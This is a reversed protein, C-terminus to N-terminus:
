LPVNITIRDYSCDYDYVGFFFDLCSWFCGFIPSPSPPPPTVYTCSKWREATWVIFDCYKTFIPLSSFSPAIVVDALSLTPAFLSTSPQSQVVPRHHFPHTCILHHPHMLITHNIRTHPHVTPSYCIMITSGERNAARKSLNGPAFLYSINPPFRPIGIFSPVLTSHRTDFSRCPWVDVYMLLCRCVDGVPTFTLTFLLLHM